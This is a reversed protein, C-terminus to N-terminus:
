KAGGWGVAEVPTLPEPLLRHMRTTVISQCQSLTGQVMSHLKSRVTEQDAVPCTAELDVCYAVDDQVKGVQADTAQESGNAQEQLLDIYEADCAQTQQGNGGRTRHCLLAMFLWVVATVGMVGLGWFM